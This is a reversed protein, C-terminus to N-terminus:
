ISANIKEERYTDVLGEIVQKCQSVSQKPFIRKLMIIAQLKSFNNAMVALAYQSSVEAEEVYTNFIDDRKEELRKQEKRLEVLMSIYELSNEITPEPNDKLFNQMMLNSANKTSSIELRVSAMRELFEKKTM